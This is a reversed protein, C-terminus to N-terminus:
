RRMYETIEATSWGRAKLGDIVAMEDVASRGGKVAPVDCATEIAIVGGYVFFNMPVSFGAPIPEAPDSALAIATDANFTVKNMSGKNDDMFVYDRALPLIINAGLAKDTTPYLEEAVQQAGPWHYPNGLYLATGEDKQVITMSLSELLVRAARATYRDTADSYTRQGTTADYVFGRQMGIGIARGIFAGDTTNNLSGNSYLNTQQQSLKVSAGWGALTGIDEVGEALATRSTDKAITGFGAVAVTDWTWLLSVYRLEQLQTRLSLGIPDCPGSTRPYRTKVPDFAFPVDPVESTGMNVKNSLGGDAM